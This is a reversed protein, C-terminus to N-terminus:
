DNAASLRTAVKCVDIERAGTETTRCDGYGFKGAFAVGDQDSGSVILVQPAGRNAARFKAVSAVDPTDQWDATARMFDRTEIYQLPFYGFYRTSPLPSSLGVGRGALAATQAAHLTPRIRWAFLHSDRQAILDANAFSAGPNDRGAALESELTPAWSKYALARVATQGILGSLAALCLARALAPAPQCSAIALVIAIGSYPALRESLLASGTKLNLLSLALVLAFFVPWLLDGSRFRRLAIFGTLVIAGLVPALAIVEWWTFTFLYTAAVIRRIIQAIGGETSATEGAINQYAFLFSAILLLVPLAAAAAWVGDRLLRQVAARTGQREFTAAARAIGDAALLLCAAVVSTIHTLYLTALFLGTAVFALADRRGNLGRWFRAFLLFLPIGLAFNYFGWHIFVGFAIPLLLLAPLLPRETEARSAAFAAVIWVFGYLSLFLSNAVLADGTLRILAALLLYIASNPEIRPNWQYFAAAPGELTGGWGFRAILDAQALHVPGDQTPVLKVLWIPGDLLVLLAAFLLAVAVVGVNAKPTEFPTAISM